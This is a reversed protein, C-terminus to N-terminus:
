KGLEIFNLLLQHGHETIISEPHFQVGITPYKYHQIAMIENSDTTATVALCSPLDDNCVELSHYRAVKMPNPVNFFIGKQDHSIISSKGHTPKKARVVRGGFVQAIAQHGLCVGLIPILPAFEKIVDLTIGAENPSCPGPSILIHSPKTKAIEDITIADNRVVVEIYGLERIYRALNHVFSDYNDIILIM